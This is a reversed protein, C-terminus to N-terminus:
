IHTRCTRKGRGNRRGGDLLGLGMDNRIAIGIRKGRGNRRGGDLLELGMDNKIAESSSTNM